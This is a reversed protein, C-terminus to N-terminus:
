FIYKDELNEANKEFNALYSASVRGLNLM